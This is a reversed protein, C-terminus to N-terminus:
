YETVETHNSPHSALAKTGFFSAEEIKTAFISKARGEPMQAEVERIVDALKTKFDIVEKLGKENLKHTSFM